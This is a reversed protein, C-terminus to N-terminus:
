SIEDKHRPEQAPAAAPPLSTSWNSGSADIKAGQGQRLTQWLAAAATEFGPAEKFLRGLMLMGELTSLVLKASSQPEADQRITADRIGSEVAQRLWLLHGAFFDRVGERLREPLADHECAMVGCLCGFDNKLGDLFLMAYAELKEIGSQREESITHLAANYRERYDAILAAGLDEKSPFYHHISAKRIGLTEALDAYSFGEYGRRRVLFEAEELLRARTSKKVLPGTLNERGISDM